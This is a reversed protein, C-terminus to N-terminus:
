TVWKTKDGECVFFNLLGLRKSYRDWTGAVIQYAGAASSKNGWRSVIRRPHDKFDTFSGGGYVKQYNTESIEHPYDETWRILKLFAAVNEEKTKTNTNGNNDSM